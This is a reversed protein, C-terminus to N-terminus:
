PAIGSETAKVVAELKSRAGLKQLVKRVHSRVTSYEIHLREAVARNDLGETMLALIERERPTLSELMGAYEAQERSTERRRALLAALTKAPILTEGQAAQRIAAVVDESPASKLLYGAAGSEVAAAISDDSGDASLFVIATNPQRKLIGSAADAGVGDPLRFDILCVDVAEREAIELAAAVTPVWRLVHLDAYEELLAALGEAVLHHDEVILVRIRPNPPTSM